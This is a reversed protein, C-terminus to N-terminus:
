CISTIEQFNFDEEFQGKLWIKALNQGFKAKACMVKVWFFFTGDVLGNKVFPNVHKLTKIGLYVGSGTGM